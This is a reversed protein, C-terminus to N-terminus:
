YSTNGGGAEIVDLCRKHMSKVLGYLYKRDLKSWEEPVATKLDDVTNYQRCGAYVARALVGWVNEIPNLDPSRAPWSMVNINNAIFWAETVKLGICLSMIRSFYGDM